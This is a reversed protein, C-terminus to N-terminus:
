FDLGKLKKSLFNMKLDQLRLQVKIDDLEIVIEEKEYKRDMLTHGLLIKM